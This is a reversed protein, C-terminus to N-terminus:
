PPTWSLVPLPPRHPIYTPIHPICIPQHARQSRLRVEGWTEYVKDRLKVVEEIKSVDTPVVLVNADGVIAAIEKSATKLKSEDIDALAVKLGL